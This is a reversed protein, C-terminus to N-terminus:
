YNEPFTEKLFDDIEKALKIYNNHHFEIQKNIENIDFVQQYCTFLILNTSEFLSAGLSKFEKTKLSKDVQYCNCNVKNSTYNIRNYECGNECLTM